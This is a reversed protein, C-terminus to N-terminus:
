LMSSFMYSIRVAMYKRESARRGERETRERESVVYRRGIAGSTDYIVNYRMQLKKYIDQAKGVIEEKNKVLPFVAVKIPAISPHFRLVAGHSFDCVTHSLSISVLCFVSRSYILLSGHPFVAVKIPAIFPDSRLGLPM